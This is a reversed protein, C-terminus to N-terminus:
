SEPPGSLLVHDPPRGRRLASHLLLTLQERVRQQGVFDDLQKPRLAGEIIREDGDALPSVVSDHRDQNDERDEWAKRRRELEAEEAGALADGGDSRAAGTAAGNATGGDTM